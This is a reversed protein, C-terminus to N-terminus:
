GQQLTHTLERRCGTCEGDIGTASGSACDRQLLGLIGATVETQDARTPASHRREM